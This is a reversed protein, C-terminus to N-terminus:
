NTKLLKRTIISKKGSITILYIGNNFKDMNLETEDVFNFKFIIGGYIDTVTLEVKDNTGTIIKFYDSTPNPYIFLIDESENDQLLTTECTQALAALTVIGLKALEHFYPINFKDIRDNKSHYYANFDGSFYSEIILVAGIGKKWFPTHDSGGTGPNQIQPNLELDYETITKLLEDKIIATGAGNNIHIDFVDDDNSDYGIMDINIVSKIRIDLSDMVSTFYYSGILGLEEQDWLAYIISYRFCSDSFIRAAELVAATGSANDDACFDTVSDYHACIMICSDAKDSGSQRAIINRGESSYKQDIVDLNLTKFREKIYDAALNNTKEIKRNSILVQEGGVFVSDEGSLIEVTNVLSDINVKALFGSLNQSNLNAIFLVSFVIIQTFRMNIKM